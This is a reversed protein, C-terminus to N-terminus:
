YKEFDIGTTGKLSKYPYPINKIGRDVLWKMEETLVRRIYSVTHSIDPDIELGTNRDFIWGADIRDDTVEQVVIYCPICFALMREIVDGKKITNLEDKSLPTYDIQM